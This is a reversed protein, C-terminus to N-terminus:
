NIKVLAGKIVMTAGAKHESTIGSSSKFEQTAKVEVTPAKLTISTSDMEILSMGVELKIKSGAKITLKDGVDLEDSSGVSTARNNAVSITQDNGVSLTDDNDIDTTRDNFVHWTEDNLVEASLDYQAHLRMEEEGATDNFAIENYGGGGPTSNSKMGMTKGGEGEPDFPPMNDANYVCGVVLPRAPDGDIFEVVVEMGVRPVALSGWGKGAWVQAVRCRMSDAGERDWHFRVLIRGYADCDIEGDGVVVATQPGQVRPAVTGAAPVVPKEALRFRYKGEYSSETAPGSNGTRYGETVYSHECSLTVYTKDNIADQPHDTVTVRMGATLSACDGRASHLMDDRGAQDVRSQALTEGAGKDPYRGPFVFSEVDGNEYGSGISREALMAATPTTFNYDTMTVRGTTMQRGSVWDRLHEGPARYQRDTIRFPRTRGPVEPLSEPEDFLVLAHGHLEHRFYYSIAYMSMLRQAFELDSEQFQVMYEIEPYSRQLDSVHDFGYEGFIAALIDPATMNHFIRQNQRLGLVWLWPRLTLTYGHGEEVPGLWRAETLVGDFYREPHAPDITNLRVSANRGLLPDFDISATTSLCEVEFEFLDNVSEHGTFRMLALGDTPGTDTNDPPHFVGLRNKQSIM